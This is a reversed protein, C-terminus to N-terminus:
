TGQPVGSKVKTWESCSNGLIVRQERENLFDKIWELIYGSFDYAETKLPLIGHDVKDFAKQSTRIYLMLLKLKVM